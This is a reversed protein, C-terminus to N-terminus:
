RNTIITSLTNSLCYGLAVMALSLTTNFVINSLAALYHHEKLMMFTEASFAAYTSLGGLLGTALFHRIREPLLETQSTLGLLIGMVFAATINVILTGLPFEPMLETVTKTTLYRLACGIAGGVAVLLVEIM